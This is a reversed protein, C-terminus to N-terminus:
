TGGMISPDFRELRLPIDVYLKLKHGIELKHEFPCLMNLYLGKSLEVVILNQKALPEFKTEVVTCEAVEAKM